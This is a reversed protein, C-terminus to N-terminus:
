DGDRSRAADLDCEPLPIEVAALEAQERARAVIDPDAEPFTAILVEITETVAARGGEVRAWDDICDQARRDDIENELRIFGVVGVTSAIVVAVTGHGLFRWVDRLRRRTPSAEEEPPEPDTLAV